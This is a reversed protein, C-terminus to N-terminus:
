HHEMEGGRVHLCVQVHACKPWLEGSGEKWQSVGGTDEVEWAATVRVKEHCDRCQCGECVPASFGSVKWNGLLLSTIDRDQWSGSAVKLGFNHFIESSSFFWPGKGCNENKTARCVLALTVLLLM